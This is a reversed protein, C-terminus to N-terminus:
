LGEHSLLMEGGLDEVEEYTHCVKRLSGKMDQCFGLQM